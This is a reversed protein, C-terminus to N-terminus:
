ARVIELLRMINAPSFFHLGLVDQPRRTVAAIEDV